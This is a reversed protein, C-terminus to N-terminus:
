FGEGILRELTIASTQRTAAMKEAYKALVDVEINLPDGPQLSRLNTVRYTHPIVAITVERGAIKAVTLSIGEVTISSKEVVYRELGKPLEIRLWWDNGKARRTGNDARPKTPALSLLKGVGDVHGQVIHGGLRAGSRMPLELNVVAGKHLMGLSTRRLTEQALDASFSHGKSVSTATLCVGSVAISDGRKLVRSSRKAHVTIRSTAGRQDNGLVHGVEEILGTFM